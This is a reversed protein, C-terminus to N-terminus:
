SPSGHGAVWVALQARNALNLKSLSRRVHQAVTNRSVGLRGAIARNDLGRAVLGAVEMERATLGSAPAQQTAGPLMLLAVAADTRDIVSLGGAALHAVVTAVASQGGVVFAIGAPTRAYDNETRIGTGTV